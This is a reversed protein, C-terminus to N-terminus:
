LDKFIDKFYPMCIKSTFDENTQLDVFELKDQM